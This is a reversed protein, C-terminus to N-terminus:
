AGAEEEELMHFFLRDLGSSVEEVRNFLLGERGLDVLLRAFEEETGAYDFELVLGGVEVREVYPAQLLRLHARAPEAMFRVRFRRLLRWHRGVEELTGCAAMRGRHLFGVHTCFDTLDPLIHSSIVITKGIRNLELLLIRLEYRARPDLSAAPEDLLLIQPDHVLARALALKQRMGKSLSEVLDDRRDSLDVVELVDDVVGNLNRTPVEFARAYFGLCERVTIGLPFGFTEPMYGIKRRVERVADLLDVGDVKVVGGDPKLLTALVRLTTTKGAGNAGILGYVAGRPVTMGFGRLVRRGGLEKELSDVELVPGDERRGGTAPQTM